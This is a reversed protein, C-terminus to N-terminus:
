FKVFMIELYKEFIDERLARLPAFFSANNDFEAVEV